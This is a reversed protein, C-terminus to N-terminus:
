PDAAPISWSSPAARTAWNCPAGHHGARGRRRRDPRGPGHPWWRCGGNSDIGNSLVHGRPADQGASQVKNPLDAFFTVGTFGLRRLLEDRAANAGALEQHTEGFHTERADIAELRVSIGRANIDHPRGSRRPLGGVLTPTGPHFKVTGGDVTDGDPEPGQRPLDPYRIVFNGRLLTYPMVGLGEGLECATEFCLLKPPGLVPEPHLSGFVRQRCGSVMSSGGSGGWFDGATSRFRPPRLIPGAPLQREWRPADM